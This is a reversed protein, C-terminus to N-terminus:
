SGNWWRWRFSRVFIRHGWVSWRWFLVSSHNLCCCSCPLRERSCMYPQKNVSSIFKRASWKRNRKLLEVSFRFNRLHRSSTWSTLLHNTPHIRRIIIVKSRCFCILLSFLGTQFYRQSIKFNIKLFDRRVKDTISSRRSARFGHLFVGVDFLRGLLLVGVPSGTTIKSQGVCFTVESGGGSTCWCACCGM